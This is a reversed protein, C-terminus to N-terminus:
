RGRRGGSPRQPKNVREAQNIEPESAKDGPLGAEGITPDLLCIQDGSQLGDVVEIMMSTKRGLTVEQRDKDKMYVITKGEREFVAELPISLVSDVKDIIIKAQASMGPKLREDGDLV